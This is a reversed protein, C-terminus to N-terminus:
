VKSTMGAMKGTGEMGEEGFGRSGTHGKNFARREMGKWM